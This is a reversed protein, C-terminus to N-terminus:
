RFMDDLDHVMAIVEDVGQSVFGELVRRLGSTWESDGLIRDRHQAITTDVVDLVARLLKRLGGDV